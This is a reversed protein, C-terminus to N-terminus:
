RLRSLEQIEGDTLARRYIRLDRLKGNFYDHQGFGIKLPEQNSLDYDDPNLPTSTAVCQGDVYLKLRDGARIAAVHRWGPALARDDSAAKGAEFSYVHGSPLTGCYLRGGFIAMSWVRRYTVDPTLDLRGTSTWQSGGDYRYVEALPLTGAYLKGNYVVMPMVEKESGLRGRHLWSGDSGYLFVSGSPWTGAYMQGQHVMFSYTQTTDPPTGLQTWGSQPEYRANNGADYSTTWLSGNFPAMTEVRRGPNGCSVWTTGGEYRYLGKGAAYLTSAYLKGQFVALAFVTDADGLQGCDVWRKEGDYRYVKGGPNENPSADLASGRANYRAVGAYLQGDHVALTTVSNCADPQGCDTWAAEQRGADIGFLLNRWNPQGSTVGAYNQLCLNVGTRSAPDYKSLIDGLVDNLEAATYVDVAISFDSKGLSLADTAPVEIYDDIGDFAAGEPDSLNAGHNQGHGALGSADQCDGRLKWYGVLGETPEAFVTTSLAGLVVLLFGWRCNSPM